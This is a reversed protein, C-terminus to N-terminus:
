KPWHETPEGMSELLIRRGLERFGNHQKAFEPEWKDVWAMAGIGNIAQYLRFREWDFPQGSAELYGELYAKKGEEDDPIDVFTIKVVDYLPDGLRVAEFDILGRIADREPTLILNHMGYDYHLLAVHPPDTLTELASATKALLRDVGLERDEETLRIRDSWVKCEKAIHRKWSFGDLTEALGMKRWWTMEALDQETLVTQLRALFRGAERLLRLQESRSLSGYAELMIVGDWWEELFYSRGELTGQGLIEPVQAGKSRLNLICEVERVVKLPVEHFKLAMLRGQKKVRYV